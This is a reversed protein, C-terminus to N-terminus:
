CKEESRLWRAKRRTTRVGVSRVWIPRPRTEYEDNHEDADDGQDAVGREHGDGHGCLLIQRRLSLLVHLSVCQCVCTSPGGM